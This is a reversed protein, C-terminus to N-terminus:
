LFARLTPTVELAGEPSIAERPEESLLSLWKLFTVKLSFSWVVAENSTSKAWLFLDAMNGDVITRHQAPPTNRRGTSSVPLESKLWQYTHGPDARRGVM